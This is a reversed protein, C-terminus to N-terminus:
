ADEGADLLRVRARHDPAAPEHVREQRLDHAAVLAGGAGRQAGGARLEGGQLRLQVGGLLPQGLWPEGVVELGHRLREGAVLPQEGAPGVGAAVAGVALREPVQARETEVLRREGHGRALEGAALALEDREGRAECALGVHQQEVLGLGVEVHGAALQELAQQLVEVAGDQHDGVIAV